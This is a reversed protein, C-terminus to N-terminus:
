PCRELTRLADEWDNFSDSRLIAPTWGDRTLSYWQKSNTAGRDYVYWCMGRKGYDVVVLRRGNPRNDVIWITSNEGFVELQLENGPIANHKVIEWGDEIEPKM